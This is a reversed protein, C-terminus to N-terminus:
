IGKKNGTMSTDSPSPSYNDDSYGNADESSKSMDGTSLSSSNDSLSSAAYSFTDGSLTYTGTLSGDSPLKAILFRTNSTNSPVYSGVVVIDNSSSLKIGNFVTDKNSFSLSRQWQVTGSSNVKFMIGIYPNGADNSQGCSYTNGSSDLSSDFFYSRNSTGYHKQWQVNGSTDYKALLAKFPPSNTNNPASTGSVYINNSSDIVIGYLGTYNGISDLNKQFQVTGSSNWKVLTGPNQGVVYLNGSSDTGSNFAYYDQGGTRGWIKKWSNTGSTNYKAVLNDYTGSTGLATTYINDSPDIFVGFNQAGTSANLKKGWQVTGSSNLKVLFADSNEIGVVYVNNSSDTKVDYCQISTGSITKQWLISGSSSFKVISGNSGNNYNGVAYINGSSDLTVDDFKGEGTPATLDAVFYPSGFAGWGLVKVSGISDVIPSM